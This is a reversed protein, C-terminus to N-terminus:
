LRMKKEYQELGKVEVDPFIMGYKDMKEVIRTDVNDLKFIIRETILEKGIDSQNALKVLNDVENFAKVFEEREEKNLKFYIRRYIAKLSNKYGKYDGYLYAQDKFRLIKALEFYYIQAMNWPVATVGDESM